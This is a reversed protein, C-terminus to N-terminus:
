ILEIQKLLKILEEKEMTVDIDLHLHTKGEIVSTSLDNLHIDTTYGFSKRLKKAIAKSVISRMFTSKINLEDMINM